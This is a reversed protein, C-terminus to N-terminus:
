NCVYMNDCRDEHPVTWSLCLYPLLQTDVLSWEHGSCFWIVYMLVTDINRIQPRADALM